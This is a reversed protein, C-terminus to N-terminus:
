VVSRDPTAGSFDIEHFDVVLRPPNDMFSVRYPVPQSVALVVKIGQGRDTVSSAAPDLRALANLGGTQTFTPAALALWLVSCLTLLAGWFRM